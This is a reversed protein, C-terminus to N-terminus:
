RPDLAGHGTLSRVHKDWRDEGYKTGSGGDALVPALDARREDLAGRAILSRTHKGWRTEGYRKREQPSIFTQPAFAVATDAELLYGFLLAAYGGASTGM